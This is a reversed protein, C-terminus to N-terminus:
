IVNNKRWNYTNPLSFGDPGGNEPLYLMRVKDPYAPWKVAPGYQQMATRYRQLFSHNARRAEALVNGDLQVAMIKHPPKKEIFVFAFNQHTGNGCAQMIDTYWAAQQDYRYKTFMQGIASESVDEVFKLDVSYHEKYIDHRCRVPLVIASQDALEPTTQVAMIGHDHITLAHLMTVETKGGNIMGWIRPYEQLADVMGRLEDWQGGEAGGITFPKSSTKYKPDAQWRAKFVDPELMYCHLAQGFHLAQTSSAGDLFNRTPNLWSNFWFDRLTNEPSLGKLTSFSMSPMTHYVSAPMDYITQALQM